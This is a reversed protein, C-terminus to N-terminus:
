GSARAKKLILFDMETSLLVMTMMRMVFWWRFQWEDDHMCIHLHKRKQM